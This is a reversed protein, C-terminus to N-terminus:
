GSGGGASIKLMADGNNPQPVRSIWERPWVKAFDEQTHYEVYTVGSLTPETRFTTYFVGKPGMAAKINRQCSLFNEGHIHEDVHLMVVLDFPGQPLSKSADHLEFQCDPNQVRLWDVASQAIEVGIYRQVGLRRLLKTWYGTGAGIELVSLASLELGTAQFDATLDDALRRYWEENDKESFSRRGVTWFDHRKSHRGEWFEGPKYKPKVVLAWLLSTYWHISRFPNM